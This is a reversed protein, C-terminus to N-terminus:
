ARLHCTMTRRPLPLAPHIVGIHVRECDRGRKLRCTPAEAITIATNYADILLRDFDRQMQEMSADAYDGNLIAASMLGAAALGPSASRALAGRIADENFGRGYTPAPTIQKM